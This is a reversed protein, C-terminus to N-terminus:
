PAALEAVPAEAQKNLIADRVETIPKIKKTDALQDLAEQPVPTNTRAAVVQYEVDITGANKANIVLDYPMPVESFAYEPNAALAAIAKTLTYSWFALKVKETDYDFVWYMFKKSEKGMYTNVLVAFDSLVRVRNDGEKFKFKDDGKGINFEKEAENLAANFDYQM